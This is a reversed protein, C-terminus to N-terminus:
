RIAAARMIEAYPDGPSCQECMMQTGDHVEVDGDPGAALHQNGEEISFTRKEWDITLTCAGPIQIRQASTM